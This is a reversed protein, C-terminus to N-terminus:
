AGQSFMTYSSNSTVTSSSDCTVVSFRRTRPRRKNRSTVSANQLQLIEFETLRQPVTIVWYEADVEEIELDREDHYPFREKLFAILVDAKIYRGLLEQKYVRPKPVAADLDRQRIFRRIIGALMKEPFM